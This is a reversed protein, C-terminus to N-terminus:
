AEFGEFIMADAYKAATQRDKASRVTWTFLPLGLVVRTFETVPTPLAGIQYAYFDPATEASELLDRLRAGRARSVKRNWWGSGAYSGSVIGRPVDPALARVAAMVDPDFSM